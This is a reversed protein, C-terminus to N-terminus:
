DSLIPNSEKIMNKHLRNTSYKLHFPYFNRKLFNVGFFIRHQNPVLDFLIREKLLNENINM